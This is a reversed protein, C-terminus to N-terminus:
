RALWYEGSPCQYRDMEGHDIYIKVSRDNACEPMESTSCRCKPNACRRGMALTRIEVGTLDDGMIERLAALMSDSRRKSLEKNFLNGLYPQGDFCKDSFGIVILRARPEQLKQLIQRKKRRIEDRAAQPIAASGSSIGGAGASVSSSPESPAFSVEILSPGEPGPQGYSTSAEIPEVNEGSPSTPQTPVIPVVALEEGNEAPIEGVEEATDAGPVAAVKEPGSPKEWKGGPVEPTKGATKEESEAIASEGRSQWQISYGLRSDVNSIPVGYGGGQMHSGGGVAAYLGGAQDAPQLQISILLQYANENARNFYYDLGTAINGEASIALSYAGMPLTYSIGPRILLENGIPTNLTKASERLIVGMNLMVGFNKYRWDAAMLLAGQWAHYGVFAKDSGFPFIMQGIGALGFGHRREHFIPIKLYLEPDLLNFGEQDTVTTLRDNQGATQYVMPVVVAVDFWHRFAFALAPRIQFRDEVPAQKLSDNLGDYIRWPERMYNLGLSLDIKFMDPLTTGQLFLFSEQLFPSLSYRDLPVRTEASVVQARSVQPFLLIVALGVVARALFVVLRKTM